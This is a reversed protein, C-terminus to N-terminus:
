GYVGERARELGNGRVERENLYEKVMDECRGRPRGRRSSGEVNSLYVKVFEENEIREIHGFWRLISRKLCEVVGYGVGSGHGRMGCRENSLDDWRSM